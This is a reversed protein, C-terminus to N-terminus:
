SLWQVVERALRQRTQNTAMKSGDPHDLSTMESSWKKELALDDCIAVVLSEGFFDVRNDCSLDADHEHERRHQSVQEGHVQGGARHGARLLGRGVRHRSPRAGFQLIAGSPVETITRQFAM